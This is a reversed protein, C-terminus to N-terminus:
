WFLMIKCWATVADMIDVFRKRNVCQYASRQSCSHYDMLTKYVFSHYKLYSCLDNLVNIFTCIQYTHM